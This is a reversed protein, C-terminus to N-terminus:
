IWGNRYRQRLDNWIERWRFEIERPHNTPVLHMLFDEHIIPYHVPRGPPRNFLLTSALEVPLKDEAYHFFRSILGYNPDTQLNQVFRWYVLKEAARGLQDLLGRRVLRVFGALDATNETQHERLEHIFLDRIDQRATMRWDCYPCKDQEMFILLLLHDTETEPMEARAGWRNEFHNM